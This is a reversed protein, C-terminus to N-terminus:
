FFNFFLHQILNSYPGFIENTPSHLYAYHMYLIYQTSFIFSVHVSSVQCVPRKMVHVLCFCQMNLIAHSKM